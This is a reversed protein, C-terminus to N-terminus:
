GGSSRMSERAMPMAAASEYFANDIVIPGEIAIGYAVISRGSTCVGCASVVISSSMPM